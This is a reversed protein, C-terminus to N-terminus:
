CQVDSWENRRKKTGAGSRTLKLAHLVERRVKRKLCIITKRAEAFRPLAHEAFKVVSFKNASQLPKGEPGRIVRRINKPQHSIKAKRGSVDRPLDRARDSRTERPAWRRRDELTPSIRVPPRHVVPPAPELRTYRSDNDLEDLVDRNITRHTSRHSSNRRAM